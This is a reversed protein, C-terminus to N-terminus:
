RADDDYAGTGTASLSSVRECHLAHLYEHKFRPTTEIHLGLDGHELERFLCRKPTDRRWVFVVAKMNERDVAAPFNRAFGVNLRALSRLILEAPSPLALHVKASIVLSAGRQEIARMIELGLSAPSRADIPRDAM